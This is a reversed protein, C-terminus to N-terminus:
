CLQKLINALGAPRIWVYTLCALSKWRGLKMIEALPVGQERLHTAGGRRLSHSAFISLDGQWGSKAAARSLWEVLIKSVTDAPMHKGTTQLEGKRTNWTTLFPEEPKNTGVLARLAVWKRIAEAPDLGQRTQGPLRVTCPEGGQNTKTVGLTVEVDGCDLIKVDRNKLKVLESRRFLGLFGLQLMAMDRAVRAQEQLSQQQIEESDGLALVQLLLDLSLPAKAGRGPNRFEHRASAKILGKIMPDTSPLSDFRAAKAWRDFTAVYGKLTGTTVTYSKYALFPIIVEIPMPGNARQLIQGEAMGLTKSCYDDLQALRSAHGAWTSDALEKGVM